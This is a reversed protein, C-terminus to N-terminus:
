DNEEEKKKKSTGKVANEYEQKIENLERTSKGLHKALDVIRQSGFVVVLILVIIIIETSGINSFM